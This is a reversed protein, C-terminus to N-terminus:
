RGHYGNSTGGPTPAVGAGPGLTVPGSLQVGCSITIAM